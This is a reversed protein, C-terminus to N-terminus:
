MERRNWSCDVSPLREGNSTAIEMQNVTDDVEDLLVLYIWTFCNWPGKLQFVTKRNLPFRPKSERKVHKV